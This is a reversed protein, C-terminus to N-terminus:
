WPISDWSRAWEARPLCLIEKPSFPAQLWRCSKSQMCSIGIPTLPWSEEANWADCPGQVEGFACEEALLEMMLKSVARRCIHVQELAMKFPSQASWFDGPAPPFAYSCWVRAPVRESGVQSFSARHAACVDSYRFRIMKTTFHETSTVAAFHAPMPQSGIVGQDLLFSLAATGPLPALVAVASCRRFAVEIQTSAFLLVHRCTAGHITCLRSITTM